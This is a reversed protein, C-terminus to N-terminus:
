EYNKVIRIADKYDLEAEVIGNCDGVNDYANIIMTKITKRDEAPLLPIFRSLDMKPITWDSLQEGLLTQVRHFLSSLRDTRVDCQVKVAWKYRQGLVRWNSQLYDVHKAHLLEAHERWIQRARDNM